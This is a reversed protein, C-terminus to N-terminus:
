LKHVESQAGQRSLGSPWHPCLIFPDVKSSSDNERARLITRQSRSSCLLDLSGSRVLQSNTVILMTGSPVAHIHYGLVQPDAIM